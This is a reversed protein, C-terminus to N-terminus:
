EVRSAIRSATILRSVATLRNLAAIMIFKMTQKIVDTRMKMALQEWTYQKEKLQL